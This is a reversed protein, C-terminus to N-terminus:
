LLALLELGWWLLLLAAVVALGYQSWPSLDDWTDLFKQSWTRM